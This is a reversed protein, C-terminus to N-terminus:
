KSIVKKHWSRKGCYPCKMHRTRNVHPAFLVKFFSPVYKEHCEACEYYGAKQEIRLSVLVLSIFIIFGVVYLVIMAWLPFSWLMYGLTGVLFLILLSLIGTIGTVIEIRLLRKDADEKQKALNILNEELKTDYKKMELEEGSLLENVSIGLENCLPIM